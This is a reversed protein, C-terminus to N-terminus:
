RRLLEMFTERNRMAHASSEINGEQQAFSAELNFHGRFLFCHGNELASCIRLSMKVVSAFLMGLFHLGNAVRRFVMDAFKGDVSVILWSQLKHM